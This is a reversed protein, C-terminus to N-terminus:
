VECGLFFSGGGTGGFLVLDIDVSDASRSDIGGGGGGEAGGGGGGTISSARSGRWNAETSLAMRGAVKGSGDGLSLGGVGGCERDPEGVSRGIDGSKSAM